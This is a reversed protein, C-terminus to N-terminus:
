VYRYQNVLIQLILLVTTILELDEKLIVNWLFDHFVVYVDLLTGANSPNSKQERYNLSSHTYM